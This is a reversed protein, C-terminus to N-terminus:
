RGRTKWGDLSARWLELRVVGEDDEVRTFFLGDGVYQFFPPAFFRTSAVVIRRVPDIVEIVNVRSSSDALQQRTVGPRANAPERRIKGRAHASGLVFLLGDPAQWLGSVVPVTNNPKLTGSELGEGIARPFWSSHPVSVRELLQGDRRWRELVYSYHHAVWVEDTRLAYSIYRALCSVCRRADDASDLSGFSARSREDLGQSHLPFGAKAQTPILGPVLLVSDAFALVNGMVTARFPVSRLFQLDAAFLQIGNPQLVAVKGDRLPVIPTNASLFEGPGGGRRGFSGTPRGISDFVVITGPEASWVFYRGQLSHFPRSRTSLLIAQSASGLTAVKQMSVVCQPCAVGPVIQVHRARSSVSTQARLGGAGHLLSAVLWLLVFLLSRSLQLM